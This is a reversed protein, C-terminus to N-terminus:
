MLVKTAIDPSYSTSLNKMFLKYHRNMALAARVAKNRMYICEAM